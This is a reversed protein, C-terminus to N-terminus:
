PTQGINGMRANRNLHHNRAPRHTQALRRLRRRHHRRLNRLRPKLALQRAPVAWINEVPNLEPARSPLFIWPSTPRGTSSPPPTGDPATSCCSPTPESPSTASSKTSSSSCRRPTPSPCRSRRGSAEPPVFPASSIPARMASIPLSAPGREESPGNGCSATGRRRPTQGEDASRHQRDRPRHLPAARALRGTPDTPEAKFSLLRKRATLRM